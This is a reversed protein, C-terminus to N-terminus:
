YKRVVAKVVAAITLDEKPIIPAYKANAPELYFRSGKKRLYKMTWAGDVEAIVIQGVKPQATREVVVMDGECIGADKMSDGKVKLIYTAERNDILYDDFSMTDCLEEEAPSPFGAEVLGLVPVEGHLKRPILRGRADKDIVGQEVLRAVFYHVASKTRYGTFAMIEAYSPMRKHTRYFDLLKDHQERYM